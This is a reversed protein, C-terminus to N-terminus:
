RSQAIAPRHVLLRHAILAVASCAAMVGAMPRATGDHLVGVMTAALTAAGFQITGYLAAASGAREGHRAMAGALANPQTFGLSAAVVFLPLLLMTLRSVQLAAVVFLTLGMVATVVNARSLIFDASWADLLRRNVQSAAILGLANLGFLWGYASAPVGYLEIFVFPSGAIYAFMAAQAVGGSLAYGLFRSDQVLHLYDSWPPNGSARKRPARTEPLGLVAAVLTALGFLVLAAFIMRWGLAVLIWGGALPALIPAVGMVLMLLSFVRASDQPAFLDRVVARAIVMGACGGVAQLFRMAILSGIGPAFACGLSALVYLTLGAYLPRKRGFRDSAPGYVLPGVALGAFFAALTLQVSAAGVGFTRELAPLSPLYMDISLPAVGIVAALVFVIRWPSPAANSAVGEVAARESSMNLATTAFLLSRAKVSKTIGCHPV